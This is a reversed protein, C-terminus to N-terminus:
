TRIKPTLSKKQLTCICIDGGGDTTEKDVLEKVNLNWPASTAAEALDKTTTENVSLFEM